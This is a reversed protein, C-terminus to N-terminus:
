VPTLHLFYFFEGVIKLQQQTLSTQSYWGTSICVVHLESFSIFDSRTEGNFCPHPLSSLRFLLVFKHPTWLNFKKRRWYFASITNQDISNSHIWNEYHSAKLDGLVKWKQVVGNGETKWIKVTIRLYFCWAFRDGTHFNEAKGPQSSM